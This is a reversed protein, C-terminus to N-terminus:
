SAAEPLEGGSAAIKNATVFSATSDAASARELLPVEVHEAHM